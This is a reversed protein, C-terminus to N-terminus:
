DEPELKIIGQTNDPATYAAVLYLLDADLLEAPIDAEGKVDIRDLLNRITM